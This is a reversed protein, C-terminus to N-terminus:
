SWAAVLSEANKQVSDLLLYDSLMDDFFLCQSNTAVIAPFEAEVQSWAM